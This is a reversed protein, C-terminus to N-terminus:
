IFEITQTNGGAADPGILNEAYNIKRHKYETNNFSEFMFLNHGNM